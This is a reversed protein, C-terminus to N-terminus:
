RFLFSDIFTFWSTPLATVLIELQNIVVVLLRSILCSLVAKLTVQIPLFIARSEARLSVLLIPM